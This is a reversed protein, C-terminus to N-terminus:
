VEMLKLKRRLIDISVNEKVAKEQLFADLLSRTSISSEPYAPFIVPSVEIMKGKIVKRVLYEPNSEDWEVIGGVSKDTLFGFSTNAVDGRRISIVADKGWSTDAPDIEYGLGEIEEMLRLTGASTRGLIMDQNHNWFARVDTVLNSESFCGPILMERFGGLDESLSNYPILARIVPKEGDRLEIQTKLCRREM